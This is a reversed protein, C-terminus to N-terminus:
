KKYPSRIHEEGWQEYIEKTWGKETELREM